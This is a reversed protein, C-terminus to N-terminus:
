KSVYKSAHVCAASITSIPKLQVSASMLAFKLFQMRTCPRPVSGIILYRLMAEALHNILNEISISTLATSYINMMHRSFPLLYMLIPWLPMSYMLIDDLYHRIHWQFRGLPWRRAIICMILQLSSSTRISIRPNSCQKDAGTMVYILNRDADLRHEMLCGDFM